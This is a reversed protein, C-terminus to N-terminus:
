ATKTLFSMRLPALARNPIACRYRQRRKAIADPFLTPSLASVTRLTASNPKVPRALWALDLIYSFELTNPSDSGAVLPVCPYANKM